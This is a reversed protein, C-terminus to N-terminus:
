KTSIIHSIPLTCNKAFYSSCIKTPHPMWHCAHALNIYNNKHFFCPLTQLALKAIPDSTLKVQIERTSSYYILFPNIPKGRTPKERVELMIEPTEQRRKMIIELQISLNNIHLQKIVYSFLTFM